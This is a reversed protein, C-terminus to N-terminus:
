DSKVKTILISDDKFLIWRIKDGDKLDLEDVIGKPVTTRRRSGRITLTTETIYVVNDLNIQM